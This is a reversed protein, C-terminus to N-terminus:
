FNFYLFTAVRKLLLISGVFYITIEICNLNNFKMSKSKDYSNKIFLSIGISLVLLLLSAKGGLYPNATVKYNETVL